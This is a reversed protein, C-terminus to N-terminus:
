KKFTVVNIVKEKLTIEHRDKRIYTNWIWISVIFIIITVIFVKLLYPVISIFKKFRRALKALFREEHNKDANHNDFDSRHKRVYM